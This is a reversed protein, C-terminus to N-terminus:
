CARCVLQHVPDAAARKSRKSIFADNKGRDDAPGRMVRDDLKLIFPVQEIM